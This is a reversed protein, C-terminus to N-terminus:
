NSGTVHILSPTLPWMSPDFARSFGDAYMKIQSLLFMHHFASMIVLDLVIVDSALLPVSITRSWITATYSLKFYDRKRVSVGMRGTDASEVPLIM